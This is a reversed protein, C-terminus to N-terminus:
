TLRARGQIHRALAVLDRDGFRTGIEAAEGAAEYAADCRGEVIHGQAAPLLMYGSEASPAQGRLTREARAFWGMASGMEGQFLLTIGLWFATRAASLVDADRAHLQHARELEELFVDELGLMYASRALREVDAVELARQADAGRRLRDAGEWEQADYRERAGRLAEARVPGHM